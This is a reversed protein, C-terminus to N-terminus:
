RGETLWNVLIRLPEPPKAPVAFLFRQGDRSVSWLGFSMPIQKGRRVGLLRPVGPRFVPGDTQVDVAVLRRGRATERM